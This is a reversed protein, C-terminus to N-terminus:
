TVQRRSMRSHIYYGALLAERVIIYCNEFRLVDELGCVICRNEGLFRDREAVADLIDCVSSRSTINLTERLTPHRSM